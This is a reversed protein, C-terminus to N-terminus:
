WAEQYPRLDDEQAWFEGAAELHPFVESLLVFGEEEMAEPSTDKPRRHIQALAEEDKYLWPKQPQSLGIYIVQSLEMCRACRLDGHGHEVDPLLHLLSSPAVAAVEGAEMIEGSETDVRVGVQGCRECQAVHAELEPHETSIEQATKEPPQPDMQDWRAMVEAEGEPDGLSRLLGLAEVFRHERVLRGVAQAEASAPWHADLYESAMAQYEEPLTHAWPQARFHAEQTGPELVSRIHALSQALADEASIELEGLHGWCWRLALQAARNQNGLESGESVGLIGAYIASAAEAIEVFSAGEPIELPRAPGHSMPIHLTKM